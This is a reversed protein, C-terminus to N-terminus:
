APPPPQTVAQLRQNTDSLKRELIDLRQDTQILATAGHLKDIVDNHASVTFQIHQTQGALLTALRENNTVLAIAIQEIAMTIREQRKDDRAEREIQARLLTARAEREARAEQERERAEREIQKQYAERREKAERLRGPFWRETIFTWARPLLWLALVGIWGWRALIQEINM